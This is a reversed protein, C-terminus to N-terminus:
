YLQLITILYVIVKHQIDPDLKSLIYKELPLDKLEDLFYEEWPALLLIGEGEKGGRGTRM